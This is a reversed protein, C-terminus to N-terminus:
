ANDNNKRRPSPSRADHDLLSLTMDAGILGSLSDVLVALLSEVAEAVVPATHADAREILSPLDLGAPNREALKELVPHRHQARAFARRLLATYGDDGLSSRLNTSVRTCLRRLASRTSAPDTADADERL